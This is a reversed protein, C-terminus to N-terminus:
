LADPTTPPCVKSPARDGATLVSYPVARLASNLYDDALEHLAKAEAPASARARVRCLQALERYDQKTWDPM